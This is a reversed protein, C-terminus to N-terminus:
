WSLSSNKCTPQRRQSSPQARNHPQGLRHLATPWEGAPIWAAQFHVKQGAVLALFDGRGLLAEAGCAPLGSAARAEAGSGVHGVLRGSIFTLMPELVPTAAQRASVVLHIGAQRGRQALCLLAKEAPTGAGTLLDTLEDVAVVIDPTSVAAPNRREMEAALRDLLATADGLNAAVPALLHPLGALPAFGRGKLDILALQLQSQRHTLALSVLMARMLETKGSGAAGILLLHGVDPSSLRILLPRGDEALGLCTTCLPLHSMEGLMRLLQVPKADQRPPAVALTGRGPAASTKSTFTKLASWTATM